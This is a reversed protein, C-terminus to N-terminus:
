ITCLMDFNPNDREFFLIDKRQILYMRHDSLRMHIDMEYQMATRPDFIIREGPIVEIDEDYYGDHDFYGGIKKGAYKVIGEQWRASRKYTEGLKPIVLGSSTTLLTAAGDQVTDRRVPDVLIYGNIMKGDTTMFIDDYKVMHMEGEQTEFSQCKTHVQYALKVHDGIKLENETEFRCGADKLSNIKYLLSADALANQGNRETVISAKISKIAERTFRIREPVGYVTGTTALNKHKADVRKGEKYTYTPALINTEKGAFQYSEFNADLKVLVYNFPIKINKISIM